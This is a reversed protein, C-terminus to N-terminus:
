QNLNISQKKIHNMYKIKNNANIENNNVENLIIINIIITRCLFCLIWRYLGILMFEHTPDDGM